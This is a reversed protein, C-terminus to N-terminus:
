KLNRERINMALADITRQIPRTQAQHYELAGRLMVIQKTAEALQESVGDIFQEVDIWDQGVLAFSLFFRLREIPDHEGLCEMDANYQELATM